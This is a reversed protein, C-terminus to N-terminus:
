QSEGFPGSIAELGGELPVVNTIVMGHWGNDAKFDHEVNRLVTMNLAPLAVGANGTGMGTSDWFSYCIMYPKM